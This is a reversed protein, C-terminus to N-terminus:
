SKVYPILWLRVNHVKAIKSGLHLAIDRNNIIQAWFSNDKTLKFYLTKDNYTVYPPLTTLRQCIVGSVQLSIIRKIDNVSSIKMSRVINNCDAESQKEELEIGVILDTNDLSNINALKSIYTGNEELKLNVQVARTENLEFFIANILSLYSEFLNALDLHDYNTNIPISAADKVFITLSAILSIVNQFLLYPTLKKDKAMIEFSYKFYSVTQLILLSETKNLQNTFTEEGIFSANSNLYSNLLGRISNIFSILCDSATVQLCPPIYAKDINIGNNADLIKAIPLLIIPELYEEELFLNVNLKGLIIMKKEGSNANMDVVEEEAGYYRIYRNKKGSQDELSYQNQLPLGLYVFKNVYHSPVDIVIPITDSPAINFMIGNPFIGTCKKILIKNLKLCAQDIELETIGFNYYPQLSHYNSLLSEYYLEQQQFNHPYIFMGDEWIVKNLKLM